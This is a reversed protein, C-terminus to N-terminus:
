AGHRFQERLPTLIHQLFPSGPALRTLRMRSVGRVGSLLGCDTVGPECNEPPVVIGDGCFPTATPTPTPTQTPTATRRTANERPAADRDCTLEADGHRRTALECPVSLCHSRSQEDHRMSRRSGAPDTTDLGALPERVFALDGDVRDLLADADLM